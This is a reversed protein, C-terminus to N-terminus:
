IWGRRCAEAGLQFRSTVGLALSITQVARQVTRLSVGLQRAIAEDKM